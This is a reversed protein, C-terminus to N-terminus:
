DFHCDTFKKGVRISLSLGIYQYWDKQKSNGRQYGNRPYITSVNDIYDTFTKRMGYELSMFLRDSFRMKLGTGFPIAANIKSYEKGELLQAQLDLLTGNFDGKPNFYFGALGVFLYPSVLSSRDKVASMSYFNFEVTGSFETITSSFNLNRRQPFSYNISADDGSVKGRMLMWRSSVRPNYNKRYYGSYAFHYYPFNLHGEPNLDGSYYTFGGMLGIEHNKPKKKAHVQPLVLILGLSLAIYLFKIKM